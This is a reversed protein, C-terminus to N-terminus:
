RESTARESPDKEDEMEAATSAMGANRSPVFELPREETRSVEEMEDEVGRLEARLRAEEVELEDMYRQLTQRFSDLFFRRRARLEEIRGISSQVSREAGEILSSARAEAERLKLDSERRAQQRAEERLEQATLLAENLAHEREKYGQLQERLGAVREHLERAERLLEEFRDAVLDLFADVQGPDYGRVVRRLDEKKKRVDLPTIEIM